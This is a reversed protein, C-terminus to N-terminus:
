GARKWTAWTLIFPIIRNGGGDCLLYILDLDIPYQMTSYVSFGPRSSDMWWAQDPYDYEHGTAIPPAAVYSRGSMGSIAALGVQSSRQGSWFSQSEDLTCFGYEVFHGSSAYDWGKKSLKATQLSVHCWFCCRHVQDIHCLPYSHWSPDSLNSNLDKRTVHDGTFPLVVYAM